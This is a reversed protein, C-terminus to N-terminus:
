TTASPFPRCRDAFQGIVCGVVVVLAIEAPVRFRTVGYAYVATATVVVATSVFPWIPVNRRRLLVLGPAGVGM